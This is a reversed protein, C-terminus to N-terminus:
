GTTSPDPETVQNLENDHFTNDEFEVNEENPGAVAYGGNGVITSRLVRLRSRQDFMQIGVLACGRIESEEVLASGAGMVRLGEGRADKLVTSRLTLGGGDVLALSYESGEFHSNSVELFGASNVLMQNMGGQTSRVDDLRARGNKTVVATTTVREGTVSSLVAGGDRVRLLWGDLDFARVNELELEGEHVDVAGFELYVQGDDETVLAPHHDSLEVDSLRGQSDLMKFMHNRGRRLTLGRGRLTAREAELNTFRTDEVTLGDLVLTADIVKVGAGDPHVVRSDTLRVEASDWVRVTFQKEFGGEVRLRTFGVRTDKGRVEIAHCRDGSISLDEFDVVAGMDLRVAGGGTRGERYDVRCDTIVCDTIEARADTVSLVCAGIGGGEFESFRLTRAVLTAGRFLGLRARHFVCGRMLGAGNSLQVGTGVFRCDVFESRGSGRVHLPDHGVFWCDVAKLWGDGDVKVPSRVESTARVLIGYLELSHETEIVEWEGVVALEVTEPGHTPVIMLPGPYSLPQREEYVGPEVHLYLGETLNRVRFATVAAQLSPYANPDTKSVRVSHM